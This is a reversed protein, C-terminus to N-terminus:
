ANMDLIVRYRAKGDELHKVADNIKSIPFHEVQPTIQHRACFALM